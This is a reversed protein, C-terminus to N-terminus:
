SATFGLYYLVFNCALGVFWVLSRMSAMDGLYFLGHLLRAVVFTIAVANLKSQDAGCASAIIVAAAFPAFSEWANAQACNARQAKGEASALFGRPDKNHKGVNFGHSIKAIAVWLIPMISALLVCFYAITM